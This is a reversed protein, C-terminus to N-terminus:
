SITQIRSSSPAPHRLGDLNVGVISAPWELWKWMHTELVLAATFIINPALDKMWWINGARSPLIAYHALIVWAEPKRQELLDTFEAPAGVPWSMFSTWDFSEGLGQKTNSGNGALLQSMLAFDERLKKLSHILIDFWFEYRRGPQMWLMEIERLKRDEEIAQLSIPISYPWWDRTVVPALIGKSIHHWCPVLIIRVGRLSRFAMSIAHMLGTISAVRQAPEQSGSSITRLFGHCEDSTALLAFITATVSYLLLAEANETTINSITDRYRILGTNMQAAAIVHLHNREKEATVNRSLHLATVAFMGKIVFAHSSAFRSVAACLAAQALADHSITASTETAFHHLLQTFRPRMIDPFGDLLSELFDSVPPSLPPSGYSQLSVSTSSVTRSGLPTISRPAPDFKLFSCENGRRM